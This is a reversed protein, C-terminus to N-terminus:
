GVVLRDQISRVVGGPDSAQMVSRIIAVGDAGYRVVPERCNHQNIGGIAYIIPPRHCSDAVGDEDNSRDFYADQHLAERVLGPLQPGELDEVGKEPHTQTPYCTGVFLYDPRFNRVTSRAAAISHSSTGILVPREADDHRGNQLRREIMRERIHPISRADKEKVHVGDADADLAAEVNDNVVVHFSRRRDDDRNGNSDGEDDHTMMQISKTRENRLSLVRTTLEVVRKQFSGDGHGNSPNSVRISILDVGTADDGDGNTNQSVLVARQITRFTEEMRRDDDCADPETVIALYPVRL